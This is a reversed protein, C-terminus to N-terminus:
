GGRPALRATRDRAITYAAHLATQNSTSTASVSAGAELLLRATRVDNRMCALILPTEGSQAVRRVHLPTYMCVARSLARVYRHACAAAARTHTRHRHTTIEPPYQLCVSTPIGPIGVFVEAPAFAGLPFPFERSNRPIGM